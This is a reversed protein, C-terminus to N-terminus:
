HSLEDWHWQKTEWLYLDSLHAAVGEYNMLTWKLHWQRVPLPAKCKGVSLIKETVMNKRSYRFIVNNLSSDRQKIVLTEAVTPLLM